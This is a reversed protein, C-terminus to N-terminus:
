CMTLGGSVSLTQGTIFAAEDSALFAVAGAIDEPKGLRRFPVAKTMAEIIKAGTEGSTIEALLPTDTAGPCVCNVNISYRAMERALTKTFAIIGGKCASYVAEGTSGVRGADSSISVIKGRKREMMFDLVARTCYIPGKLNIAIIKDWFDPTNKVFPEIKDWGANNVLIDIQGFANLTSKVMEQVQTRDTIDTFLPLGKAGGKELLAVTEKTGEAKIDAVGVRAGLSGFKLAIGRGIGGGAGTVIAVKDKLDM